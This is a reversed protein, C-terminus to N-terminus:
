HCAVSERNLISTPIYLLQETKSGQHATLQSYEVSRLSLNNSVYRHTELSPKILGVTGVLVGLRLVGRRPRCETVETGCPSPSAILLVGTASAILSVANSSSEFPSHPQQNK